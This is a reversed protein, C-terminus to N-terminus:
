PLLGHTLRRPEHLVLPLQRLPSRDRHAHEVPVLDVLVERRLLHPRLARPAHVAADREAVRTTREPVQDGLPVVEHVAVLPLRRAFTQVRRVVERLEGPRRHGAGHSAAHTSPILSGGTVILCISTSIMSRAHSSPQTAGITGSTRVPLRTATTPEPGRAEGGRLLERAGTVVDHDVFAGIADTPQQSVADGLELHLLPVEVAADLLHAGLAGLEAHVRVDTLVHRDVFHEPVVRDHERASGRRPAVQRHGPALQAADILRHLVQGPRVLHLLAVEGFWRDGGLVLAHHDDASAVGAGVAEAGRDPVARRAHVLELDQGSRGVLPGVGMWPRGVRHDVADRGRVLLTDLADVRHVRLAEEAVVVAVHACQAAVLDLLDNM